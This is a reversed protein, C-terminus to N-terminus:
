SSPGRRRQLVAANSGIATKEGSFNRSFEDTYSGLEEKITEASEERRGGGMFARVAGQDLDDKFSKKGQEDDKPM